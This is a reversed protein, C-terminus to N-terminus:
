YSFMEEKENRSLFSVEATDKPIYLGDLIIGCSKISGWRYVETVLISDQEATPCYGKSYHYRNKAKYSNKWKIFCEGRLYRPNVWPDISMRLTFVYIFWLVILVPTGFLISYIRIPKENKYKKGVVIDSAILLILNLVMICFPIFLFIYNEAYEGQNEPLQTHVWFSGFILVPAIIHCTNAFTRTIRM